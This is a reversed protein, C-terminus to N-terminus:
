AGPELRAIGPVQGFKRDYTYVKGQCFELSLAAHLCDAFSLVPHQEYLDLAALVAARDPFEISSLSAIERLAEATRARDISYHTTLIYVAEFFVTASVRACRTGEALEEFVHLSAPSQEMQDGLLHRLLINTDIFPCDSM